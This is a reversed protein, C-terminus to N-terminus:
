DPHMNHFICPAALLIYNDRLTLVNINHYLIDMNFYLKLNEFSHLTFGTYLSWELSVLFDNKTHLNGEHM